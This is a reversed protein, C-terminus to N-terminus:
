KQKHEQNNNSSVWDKKSPKKAKLVLQHKNDFTESPKKTKWHQMKMGLMGWKSKQEWSSNSPAESKECTVEKFQWKNNNPSQHKESPKKIRLQQQKPKAKHYLIKTTAELSTNRKGQHVNFKCCRQWNLKTSKKRKWSM